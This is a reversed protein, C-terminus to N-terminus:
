DFTYAPGHGWGTPQQPSGARERCAEPLHQDVRGKDGTKMDGGTHTYTHACVRTRHTTHDGAERKYPCRYHCKLSVRIIWSLRRRELDKIYNYRSLGKRWQLCHKCTRPVLIPGVKPALVLQLISLRSSLVVDMLVSNRLNGKAAVGGEKGGGVKKKKKKPSGWPM